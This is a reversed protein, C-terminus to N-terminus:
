NFDSQAGLRKLGLADHWGLVDHWGLADNWVLADGALALHM